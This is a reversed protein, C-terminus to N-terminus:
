EDGGDDDEVIMERTASDSWVPIQSSAGTAPNVLYRYSAEQNYQEKMWVWGEKYYSCDDNFCVFFFEESWTAGEPVRWKKLRSGCYACTRRIDAM